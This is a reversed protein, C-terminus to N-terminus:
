SRCGSAARSPTSVCACTSCGSRCTPRIAVMTTSFTTFHRASVSSWSAEDDRWGAGVAVLSSAHGQDPRVAPRVVAADHPAVGRVRSRALLLERSVSRSAEDSVRGALYRYRLSAYAADFIRARRDPTLAALSADAPDLRGGVLAEVRRRDSRSLAHLAARLLTEPSPRYRTTRVMGPRATVARVTDVPIVTGRFRRSAELDALGVDLM